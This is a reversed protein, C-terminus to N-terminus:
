IYYVMSKKIMFKSKHICTYTNIKDDSLWPNNNWVKVYQKM